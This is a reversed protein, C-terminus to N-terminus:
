RLVTYGVGSSSQTADGSALQLVYHTYIYKYLAKETEKDIEVVGTLTFSPAVARGSEQRM